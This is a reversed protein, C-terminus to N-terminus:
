HRRLSPLKPPYGPPAKVTINRWWKKYLRLDPQGPALPVFPDECSPWGRVKAAHCPSLNTPWPAFAEFSCSGTCIFPSRPGKPPQCPQGAPKGGGRLIAINHGPPQAPRSVTQSSHWLYYPARAFLDANSKPPNAPQSSAQAPSVPGVEAIFPIQAQCAPLTTPWLAM